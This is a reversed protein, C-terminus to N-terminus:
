LDTLEPEYWNLTLHNRNKIQVSYEQHSFDIQSTETEVKAM